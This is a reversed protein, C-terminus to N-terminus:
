LAGMRLLLGIAYATKNTPTRACRSDAAATSPEVRQSQPAPPPDHDGRVPEEDDVVQGGADDPPIYILCTHREHDVRHYRDM